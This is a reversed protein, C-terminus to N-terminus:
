NLSGGFLFLYEGNDAYYATFMDTIDACMERCKVNNGGLFYSRDHPCMFQLVDSAIAKM